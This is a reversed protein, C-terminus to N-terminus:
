PLKVVTGRLAVGGMVAGAGCEYETQSTFEENRYVSHINVVANGGERLAREKLSVMASLWAWECGVKDSKNFFNTKKNATFSGLQKASKPYAQNGWYFKVPGDLKAQAEATSAAEQISLKLRTDRAEASLSLGLSLTVALAAMYFPKM